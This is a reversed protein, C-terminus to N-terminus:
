KKEEKKLYWHRKKYDYGEMKRMIALGYVCDIRCWEFNYKGEKIMKIIERFAEEGPGFCDHCIFYGRGNGKLQPYLVDLEHFIHKSDHAGDQFILDFTIGKFTEPTLNISDMEILTNPLGADTLKKKSKEIQCIDIGYFMPDSIGFRKAHDKVASALYFSTYSEATGIECIAKCGIAMAFFYLLPSWMITSNINTFHMKQLAEYIPSPYQEFYEKDKPHLPTM